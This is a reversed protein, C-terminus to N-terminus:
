QARLAIAPDVRMARRAPLYSAVLAAAAFLAPGAIFTAPDTVSVHYLLAAMLRTLAVAAALGIAIGTGALLFGRQLVLRLIDRGGAGLSIRIGMELTRETVSYAIVGYIGVVSLLLATVALGALLWTTFRPQAAGAELLEDMTQVATVPQDRDLSLVCARVAAVLSRPDRATRVVLNQTASPLQAFPVFIEPQPDTGVALNEVDGMVGAIQSPAPQRGLLIHKGVPNQHPWYRRALAENVVIVRPATADDHATFERGYRIPVRMAAAYGPTIQQINFIPRQALPVMPQGEPLAM